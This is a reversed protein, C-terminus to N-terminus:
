GAKSKRRAEYFNLVQKASSTTLRSFKGYADDMDSQAVGKEGARMVLLAQLTRWSLGASKGLLMVMDPSDDILAREAVDPPVGCLLTFAVTTEEFKKAKAFGYLENEDLEGAQHM